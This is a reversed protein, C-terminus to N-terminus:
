TNNIICVLPIITPCNKGISTNTYLFSYLYKFLWSCSYRFLMPYTKRAIEYNVFFYFTLKYKTCLQWTERMWSSVGACIQMIQGCRELMAFKQLKKFITELLKSSNRRTQQICHILLYFNQTWHIACLKLFKEQLPALVCSM